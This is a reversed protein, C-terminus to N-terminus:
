SEDWAVILLWEEDNCRAIVESDIMTKGLWEDTVFDFDERLWVDNARPPGDTIQATIYKSPSTYQCPHGDGGLDIATGEKVLKDIWALGYEDTQWAALREGAHSAATAPLAIPSKQRYVNINWGIM